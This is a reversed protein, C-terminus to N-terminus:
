AFRMSIVCHPRELPAAESVFAGVAGTKEGQVFLRLFIRVRGGAFCPKRYAIELREALVVQSLGKHALRRLAAEQFLRPYVLSNVHQNSDTHTLGFVVEADDPALQEDLWHAGEPLALVANHDRWQWSAPPVEDGLKLVKREAPSAFIKTMVHEAFVRGVLVPEGVSPPPPGFTRGRPAHATAWMNLMVRDVNGAANVTHALQFRGDAQLPRGVGIPGGTGGGHDIVMRTLVSVIGQHGLKALPHHPAPKSIVKRWIVDGITHPLALLMLRGDQSVDEYRLPSQGEAHDSDPVDPPTPYWDM